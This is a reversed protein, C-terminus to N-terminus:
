WTVEAMADLVPWFLSVYYETRKQLISQLEAEFPEVFPAAPGDGREGRVYAQYELLAQGHGSAAFEAKIAEFQEPTIEAQFRDKSGRTLTVVIPKDIM